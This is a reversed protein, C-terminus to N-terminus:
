KCYIRYSIGFWYLTINSADFSLKFCVHYIKTNVKKLSPIIFTNLSNFESWSIFSSDIAATLTITPFISLKSLTPSTNLWFFTNINTSINTIYTNFFIFSSVVFLIFLLDDSNNYIKILIFYLIMLHSSLFNLYHHYICFSFLLIRYSCHFHDWLLLYYLYNM